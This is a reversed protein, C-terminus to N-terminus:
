RLRVVDCSRADCLRDAVGHWVGIFGLTCNEDGVAFRQREEHCAVEYCVPTLCLVIEEM